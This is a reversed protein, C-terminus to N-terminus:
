SAESLVRVDNVLRNGLRDKEIELDFRAQLNLSFRESMGFYRSLRLTANATIGRKGHVIENIRRPPVSVDRTLRYQNISLAKLFEELLVAGPHIPALKRAM